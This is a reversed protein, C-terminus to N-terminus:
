PWQGSGARQTEMGTAPTPTCLTGPGGGGASPLLSGDTGRPQPVRAKGQGPLRHPRFSPCGPQPTMMRALGVRVWGPFWPDGMRKYLLGAEWPGQNESQEQTYSVGWGHTYTVSSWTPRMRTNRCRGMGTVQTSNACKVASPLVGAGPHRANVHGHSHGTQMCVRPLPLPHPTPLLPGWSENLWRSLVNNIWMGEEQDGSDRYVSLGGVLPGLSLVALLLPVDRSIHQPMGQLILIGEAQTKQNQTKTTTGNPVHGTM